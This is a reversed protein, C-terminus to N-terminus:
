IGPRTRGAQAPRPSAASGRAQGFTQEDIGIRNGASIPFQFLRSHDGFAPRRASVNRVGARRQGAAFSYPDQRFADVSQERFCALQIDANIFNHLEDTLAVLVHLRRGSSFHFWSRWTWTGSATTSTLDSDRRNPSLIRQIVHADCSGRPITKPSTPALPAPLVVSM